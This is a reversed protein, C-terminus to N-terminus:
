SESRSPTVSPSIFATRSPFSQLRAQQEILEIRPRTKKIYWSNPLERLEWHELAGQNSCIEYVWLSDASALHFQGNSLLTRQLRDEFNFYLNDHFKEAPVKRFFEPLLNRAVDDLILKMQNPVIKRPGLIKQFYSLRVVDKPVPSDM